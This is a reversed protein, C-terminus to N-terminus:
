SFADLVGIAVETAMKSVHEKQDGCLSPTVTTPPIFRSQWDNRRGIQVQIAVGGLLQSISRVDDNRRSAVASPDRLSNM